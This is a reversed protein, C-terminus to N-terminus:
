TYPGAGSDKGIQSFSLTLRLTRPTAVGLVLITAAALSWMLGLDLVNVLWAALVGPFLVMIDLRLWVTKRISFWPGWEDARVIRVSPFRLRSIYRMIM